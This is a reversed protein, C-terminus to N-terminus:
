CSEIFRRLDSAESPHAQARREVFARLRALDAQNKERCLGEHLSRVGTRLTDEPARELRPAVVDVRSFGKGLAALPRGSARLAAPGVDLAAGYTAADIPAGLMQPVDAWKFFREDAFSDILVLGYFLAARKKPARPWQRKVEDLFPEPHVTLHADVLTRFAVSWQADDSELMALFDLAGKDHLFNAFVARTLADDHKALIYQAFRQQTDPREMVWRYFQRECYVPTSHTEGDDDIKTPCVYVNYLAQTATTNSEHIEHGDKAWADFMSTGLAFLDLGPWASTVTHDGERV